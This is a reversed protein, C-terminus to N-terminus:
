KEEDDNYVVDATNDIPLLAFPKVISGPGTTTYGCCTCRIRDFESVYVHSRQVSEGCACYATHYNSNTKMYIHTYDHVDHSVTMSFSGDVRTGNIRFRLYIVQGDELDQPVSKAGSEHISTGYKRGTIVNEGVVEDFVEIITYSGSVDFVYHGGIPCEFKIWYYTSDNDFSKAYTFGLNFSESINPNVYEAMASEYSTVLHNETNSFDGDCEYATVSIYYTESAHNIVANWVASDISINLIRKPGQDISYDATPTTSVILNYSADYFNVQYKKANFYINRSSMKEEFSVTPTGSSSNLSLEPTMTALRHLALLTRFALVEEFDDHNSEFYQRFEYFNSANSQITYEFIEQHTLSLSDNEEDDGFDVMDFLISTVTKENDETTGLENELYTDVLTDTYVDDGWYNIRPKGSLYTEQIYNQTLNGFFTAWGESWAISCGKEKCLDISFNSNGDSSTVACGPTYCTDNYFYENVFHSYYHDAMAISDHGGGVSEFNTEQAQVFHGYEHLAIDCCSYINPCPNEDDELNIGDFTIHIEDDFLDRERFYAFNGNGITYFVNLYNIEDNKLMRYYKSGYIFFQALQISQKYLSDPTVSITITPMVHNGSECNEYQGRYFMDYYRLVSSESVNIYEGESYVRIYFDYGNELIGTNNSINFSYNGNIDTYTSAIKTDFSATAQKDWLEVVGFQYPHSVGDKEWNVTGSVVTDYDAVSNIDAQSANLTMDFLEMSMETTTTGELTMLYEDSPAVYSYPSVFLYGSQATGYLKVSLEEENDLTITVTLTPFQNELDHLVTFLINGSNIDFDGVLSFGDGDFSINSVSNYLETNIILDIYAGVLHQSSDATLLARNVFGNQYNNTSENETSRLETTTKETSESASAIIFSNSLFTFSLVLSLVLILLRKM